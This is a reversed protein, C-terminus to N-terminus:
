AEDGLTCRTVQSKLHTEHSVDRHIFPFYFYLFFFCVSICREEYTTYAATKRGNVNTLLKIIDTDTSRERQMPGTISDKNRAFAYRLSNIRM